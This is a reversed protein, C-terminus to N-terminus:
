CFITFYFDTSLSLDTLLGDSSPGFVRIASLCFKNMLNDQQENPNGQADKTFKYIETYVDKGKPNLNAIKM